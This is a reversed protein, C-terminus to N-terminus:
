VGPVSRVDDHRSAACRDKALDSLKPMYSFSADFSSISLDSPVTASTTGGGGGTSGGCAAVLLGVVAIAPFLRSLKM